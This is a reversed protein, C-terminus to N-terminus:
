YATFCFFRLLQQQQNVRKLIVPHSQHCPSCACGCSLVCSPCSPACPCPCSSSAYLSSPACPSPDQSPSLLPSGAYTTRFLGTSECLFGMERLLNQWLKEATVGTLGTLASTLCQLTYRRIKCHQCHQACMDVETIFKDLHFATTHLQM